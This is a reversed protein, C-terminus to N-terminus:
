GNILMQTIGSDFCSKDRRLNLIAQHLIDEDMDKSIYGELRLDMSTRFFQFNFEESVMIIRISRNHEKIFRAMEFGSMGILFVDVFIVEPDLFSYLNIAEEGTTVAGVIQLGDSFRSLLDWNNQFQGVLLTKLIKM